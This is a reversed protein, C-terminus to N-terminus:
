GELVATWAAERLPEGLSRRLALPLPIAGQALLRDNFARESAAARNAQPQRARAEKLLLWGLAGALADGPALGIRALLAQAAAEDLGTRRIRGLAQDADILGTHLDLDIRALLLRERRQALSAHLADLGSRGDQTCQALRLSLYLGWAVRLSAGNAVRRATRAALGPASWALLHSGGWGQDLCRLRVQDLTETETGPAPDALFLTGGPSAGEARAPLYDADLRHAGPCAPAAAVRLPAQPLTALGSAAIEGALAGCVRRHLALRGLDGGPDGATEAASEVATAAPLPEHGPEPWHALGALADLATELALDLPEGLALPDCDMFHLHALRLRLHEVGCGLGGAAVAALDRTLFDRYGALATRAGEALSALESLGYCRQRLWPAQVLDRLYCRLGDADRAAAAVLTPALSRSQGRLVAQAQRLREPLAGLLDALPGRLPDPPDLTLRHLEGVPLFRGPDRCRWDYDLLEAHEVRAAGYMLALDIQRDPDLAGFDIEDLGLIATELWGRLAALDDDDVPALWGGPPRVGIALALDPRYRFWVDYLEDALADLEAGAEPM